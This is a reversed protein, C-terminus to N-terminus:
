PAGKSQLWAIANCDGQRAHAQLYEYAMREAAIFRTKWVAVAGTDMAQLYAKAIWAHNDCKIKVHSLSRGPAANIWTMAADWKSGDCEFCASTAPILIPLPVDFVDVGDLTVREGIDLQVFAHAGPASLVTGLYWGLGLSHTADSLTTDIVGSVLPFTPADVAFRLQSQGGRMMVGVHRIERVGLARLAAVAENLALPIPVNLVELVARIGDLSKAPGFWLGGDGDADMEVYMFLLDRCAPGDWKGCLRRVASCKADTAMQGFSPNGRLFLAETDVMSENPGLRFELFVTDPTVGPLERHAFPLVNQLHM